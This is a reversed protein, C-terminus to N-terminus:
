TKVKKMSRDKPEPITGRREAARALRDDDVVGDEVGVGGVHRPEGFGALPAPDHQGLVGPDAGVVELPL